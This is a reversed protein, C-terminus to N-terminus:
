TGTSLRDRGRVRRSAILLLVAAGAAFAGNGIADALPTTGPMSPVQVFGWWAYTLIAGATLALHHGPGWGPRRSWILVAVAPLALMLLMFAANAAAPVSGITFTSLLFLSLAFFALAGVIVPHPPRGPRPAAGPRRGSLVALGVLLGIVVAAGALQGPAPLFDGATGAFIAACGILYLLVAGALAWGKLWPRGAHDPWLAEALGIAAATSWVTHLGLVYVTWWAGMGLAPIYGYDLLRMGLFDPNFLSHDVFAEEVIGYALGLLFIGPWGAGLRLSIERVLLAGAGYLPALVVLTWLWTIPMNGLLFEGVLPALLFLTAAPLFYTRTGSPQAM